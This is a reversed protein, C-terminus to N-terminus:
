TAKEVGESSMEELEDLIQEAQHWIITSALGEVTPAEFLRRLPIEQNFLTRMRSVVQAASLSHGGLDFFNDDVAVKDAGLVETWIKAIKKEVPTRPAVFDGRHTLQLVPLGRRDVKGNPTLPLSDMFVFASPVLYEPLKERLYSRLETTTPTGQQASVVYALLRNDAPKEERAVVVAERIGSHQSLMAEIEGLEIRYGRIKVQNDIRGLFEIRGDPLYRGWDGTKYLRRAPEGHFSHDIFTEATLEPRNWYGRALGDGGILLEGAVGIPVPQLNGDLIYVQTNAIPRGITPASDLRVMGACANATAETPGYLNWIKINPFAAFTRDVLDQDLREGGQFLASLSASVERARDPSLEDLMASWLFPVCNLGVRSQRTLAGLLRAPQRVVEDSLIWVPDGRLLPAFLQKLSADFTPSTVLPLNQAAKALPSENFWCLYNVLCRHEIMVGKPKGTSGSTYIVYALSVPRVGSQPNITSGRAIEGWDRDLCVLKSPIATTVALKEQTLLLRVQADELVFGLREEPHTPDLPVYAGGAKLIGLL